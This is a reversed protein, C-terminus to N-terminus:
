ISSAVMGTSIPSPNMLGAPCGNKPMWQLDCLFLTHESLFLTANERVRQCSHQNNRFPHAVMGARRGLDLSTDSEEGGPV